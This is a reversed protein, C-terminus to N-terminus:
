FSAGGKRAPMLKRPVVGAVTLRVQINKKKDSGGNVHLDNTALIQPQDALQALFNVLQEIGCTFTVTVTVQGYDNGLPRDRFGENGRADIGNSKAIDQVMGLLQAEAQELTDAKLLGKERAALQKTAEQLVEERGPVTAAIRRLRDLRKEALPASDSPSVVGEPARDANIGFRLAAIAALGVILIAGTKRDLTGVNM